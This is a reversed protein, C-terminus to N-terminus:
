TTSLDRQLYLEAEFDIYRDLKILTGDTLTVYCTCLFPAYASTSIGIIGNKEKEEFVKNGWMHGFFFEAKRVDAFNNSKHRVLYIFIDYKQKPKKSPTIIHTLFLGSNHKYITLREDERPQGARQMKSARAVPAAYELAKLQEGLEIPGAKLSSGSRIRDLITNIFSAIPVRLIIFLVVFLVIWALTQFFPVYGALKELDEIMAAGMRFQTM